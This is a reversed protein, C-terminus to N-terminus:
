RPLCVPEKVSGLNEPVDFMSKTMPCASEITIRQSFIEKADAGNCGSGVWVRRTIAGLGCEDIKVTVTQRLNGRCTTSIIGHDGKETSRFLTTYPFLTCSPPRRLM